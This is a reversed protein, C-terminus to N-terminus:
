QYKVIIIIIVVALALVAIGAAILERHRVPEETKEILEEIIAVRRMSEKIGAIYEDTGPKNAVLWAHLDADSKAKLNFKDDIM